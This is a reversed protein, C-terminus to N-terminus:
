WAATLLSTESSADWRVVRKIGKWFAGELSVKLQYAPVQKAFASAHEFLAKGLTAGNLRERRSWTGSLVEAALQTVYSAARGQGMPV